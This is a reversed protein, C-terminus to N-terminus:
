KGVHPYEDERGHRLIPSAFFGSRRQAEAALAADEKTWNPHHLHMVELSFGPETTSEVVTIGVVTAGARQSGRAIFCRMDLEALRHDQPEDRSCRLFVYTVGSTSPVIRARIQRQRARALFDALNKALIRRNFRHERAMVRVTREIDSLTLGPQLYGERFEQSLLEIIRDWGYSERDSEKKALYAAEQSFGAWCTGDAIFFDCDNPFTRNHNLYMALIDEDAGVIGTPRGAFAEKDILYKVFDTITDLEGLVIDLSREDFVHVFGKGFDGQCFPGERKGGLAVAVLHVHRRSFDPFSLAVAGEATVVRSSRRVFRAAGYLQDVSGEIARKQWRQWGIAPDGGAAFTIDKVSFIIIDPDCVVLCDCLEKGADKGRPTPYSWLSLFSRHCLKALYEESSNV